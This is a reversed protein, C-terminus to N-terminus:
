RRTSGRRSFMDQAMLYARMESPGALRWCRTGSLVVLYHRWKVCVSDLPHKTRFPNWRREGDQAKREPSGQNQQHSRTSRRKKPKPEEPQAVGATKPEEPEANGLELRRRPETTKPEEEEPENELRTM